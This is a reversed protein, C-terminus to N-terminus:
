DIIKMDDIINKMQTCILLDLLTYDLEIEESIEKEDTIVKVPYDLSQVYLKVAEINYEVDEYGFYDRDSEWSSYDAHKNIYSTVEADISAHYDNGKYVTRMEVSVFYSM